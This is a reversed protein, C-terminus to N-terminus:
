RKGQSIISVCYSYIMGILISFCISILMGCLHSVNFNELLYFFLFQHFLYLSMGYKALFVVVKNGFLFDMLVSKFAYVYYILFLYVLTICLVSLQHRQYFIIAFLVVVSIIEQGKVKSQEIDYILLGFILGATYELIRYFPSIYFFWIGYGDPIKLSSRLLFMGLLLLSLVLCLHNRKIKSLLKYLLPSMLYCFLLSSIFWSVGVYDYYYSISSSSPIYSQLLLIHPLVDWSVALHRLYICLVLCLWYLPFIKILKKKYYSRLCQPHRYLFGSLVFFFTCILWGEGIFQLNAHMFAIGILFLLRLGQFNRTRDNM